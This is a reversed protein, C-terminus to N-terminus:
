TKGSAPNRYSGGKGRKGSRKHARVSKLYAEAARLTGGVLKEYQRGDTIKQNNTLAQQTTTFTKLKDKLRDRDRDLRKQKDALKKDYESEEMVTFGPDSSSRRVDLKGGGYDKVKEDELKNIKEEEAIMKSETESKSIEPLDLEPESPSNIDKDYPVRSDHYPLILTLLISFM